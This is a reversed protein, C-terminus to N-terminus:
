AGEDLSVAMNMRMRERYEGPALLITDGHKMKKVAAGFSGDGPSVRFIEAALISGACAAALLLMQKLM